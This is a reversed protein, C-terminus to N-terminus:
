MIEGTKKKHKKTMKHRTLRDPTGFEQNCTECYLEKQEKLPDHEDESFEEPADANMDHNQATNAAVDHIEFMGESGIKYIHVDTENSMNIMLYNYKTKTAYRWVELMQNQGGIFQGGYEELIAKVETDNTCRSLIICKCLTRIPRPVDRLTQNSVFLSTFTHRNKTILGTVTGTRRLYGSIDDAIILNVPPDPKEKDQSDFNEKLWHIYQDIISDMNEADTRIEVIDEMSEDLFPQSSNDTLVTPSIYLISEFIGGWFENRFCFNTILSTKGHGSGCCFFISTPLKPLIPNVARKLKIPKITPQIAYIRMDDNSFDHEENDKPM